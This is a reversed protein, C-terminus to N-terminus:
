HRSRSAARITEDIWKFVAELEKRALSHGQAHEHVIVEYGKARLEEAGVPGHEGYNPDKPDGVFVVTPAPDPKDPVAFSQKGSGVMVVGRFKTSVDAKAVIDDWLRFGGGSFGLAYVQADDIAFQGKLQELYKPVYGVADQDNDCRELSIVLPARRPLMPKISQLFNRATGGNGHVLLVVPVPKRPSYGRPVLAVFGEEHEEIAVTGEQEGARWRPLPRKEEPEDPLAFGLSGACALFALLAVRKRMDGM